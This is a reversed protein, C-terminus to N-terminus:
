RSCHVWEGVRENHLESATYTAVVNSFEVLGFPKAVKRIENALESFDAALISPAIVIKRM